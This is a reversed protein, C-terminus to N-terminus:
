RHVCVRLPSMSEFIPCLTPTGAGNRVDAGASSPTIAGSVRRPFAALTQAHAGRPTRRVSATHRSNATSAHFTGSPGAHCPRPSQCLFHQHTHPQDEKQKGGDRRSRQLPIGESANSQFLQGKTEAPSSKRQVGDSDQRATNHLSSNGGDPKVGVGDEAAAPQMNSVILWIGAM